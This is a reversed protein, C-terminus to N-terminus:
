QLVYVFFKGWSERIMWSNPIIAAVKPCDNRGEFIFGGQTKIFSIKMEDMKKLVEDM